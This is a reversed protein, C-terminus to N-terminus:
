IEVGTSDADEFFSQESSGPPSGMAEDWVESKWV